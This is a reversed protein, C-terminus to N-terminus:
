DFHYLDGTNVPRDCPVAQPEFRKSFFATCWSPHNPEWFDLRNFGRSILHCQLANYQWRDANDLIILGDERVMHMAYWLSLPRAMGDVIVCDFYGKPKRCITSAYGRYDNNNMGHYTNYGMDRDEKIPLYFNMFYFGDDLNMGNNLIPAGRDVFEVTTNPAGVSIQSYWNRDHEVTYVESCRDGYYKTSNGGGYEFVKWKDSIITNLFELAPATYLPSFM